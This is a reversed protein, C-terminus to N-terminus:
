FATIPNFDITDSIQFTDSWNSTFSWAFNNFNHTNYGQSDVSGLFYGTIPFPSLETGTVNAAIIQEHENVLYVGLQGFISGESVFQDLELKQASPLGRYRGTVSVQSGGVIIAQGFTTTNDDGGDSIPEGGPFVLNENIPGFQTKTGDIAAQLATWNALTGIATADSFPTGLRQFVVRVIQGFHEACTVPTLDVIAAPLPCVYKLSM